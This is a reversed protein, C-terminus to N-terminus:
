AWCARSQLGCKLCSESLFRSNMESRRPVTDLRREIQPMKLWEQNPDSVEKLVKWAPSSGRGGRWWPARPTGGPTSGPRSKVVRCSSGPQSKSTTNRKRIRSGSRVKLFISFLFNFYVFVSYPFYLLTYIKTLFPFGIVM